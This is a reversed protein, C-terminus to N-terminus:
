DNINVVSELLTNISSVNTEPLFHSQSYEYAKEALDLALQPEKYVMKIKRALDEADGQEYLLGTDGDIIIEPTGGSNSGIVVLGSRMGELTVRGFPEAVACMLEGNMEERFEPMDNRTGEYIVQKEVNLESALQRLFVSYGNKRNSLDAGVIHLFVDDIGQKKLIGLAKIADAHGKEPAIRGCEVFHMGNIRTQISRSANELPLGNHIMTIKNKPMYKNQLLLSKMGYSIAIIQNCRKFLEKAGIIYKESPQVLSRFHWVYPIKLIRAVFAGIYPAVDNIYVVDFKLYRISRAFRRARLYDIIAYINNRILRLSNMYYLNKIGSIQNFQLTMWNIGITELEVCLQGEEPIVVLIDHHYKEKLINLVMLLSRNAGGVMSSFPTFVLIKM